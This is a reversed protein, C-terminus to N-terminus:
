LFFLTSLIKRMRRHAAKATIRSGNKKNVQTGNEIIHAYM